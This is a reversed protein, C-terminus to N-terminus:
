GSTRSCSNSGCWETRLQPQTVLSGATRGRCHPAAALLRVHSQGSASVRKLMCGAAHCAESGLTAGRM